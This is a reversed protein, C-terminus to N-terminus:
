TQSEIFVFGFICEPRVYKVTNNRKKSKMISIHRVIKIYCIYNGIQYGEADVGRDAAPDPSTPTIYPRCFM